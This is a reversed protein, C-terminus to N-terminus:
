AGQGLLWFVSSTDLNFPVRFIHEQIMQKQFSILIKKATYRSKEPTLYVM